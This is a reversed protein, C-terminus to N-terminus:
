PKKPPPLTRKDGAKLIDFSRKGPAVWLVYSDGLVEITNGQVLVATGEDIGLGLLTPQQDLVSLLRNLRNRKFFHQDVVTNKLLGLGPATQAKEQGSTIMVDSQVAAGASTGGICGGRQHLAHLAKATATDRYTTTIRSQDGGSFWVATAEQLPKVFNADDAQKRDRTHLLQLSKLNYKQWGELFTAEANKADASLSATPIVVLKANKGGAKEIFADRVADPTKGGGVLVLTGTPEAGDLRVMLVLWILWSGRM